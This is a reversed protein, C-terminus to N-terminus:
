RPQVTSITNKQLKPSQRIVDNTKINGTLDSDGNEDNNTDQNIITNISFIVFFSVMKFFFTFVFDSIKLM